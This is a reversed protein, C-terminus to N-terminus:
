STKLRNFYLNPNLIEQYNPPRNLLLIFIPYKIKGSKLIQIDMFNKLYQSAYNYLILYRKNKDRLDSEYM